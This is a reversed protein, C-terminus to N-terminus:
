REKHRRTWGIGIQATLLQEERRTPHQAKRRIGPVGGFRGKRLEIQMVGADAAFRVAEKLDNYRFRAFVGQEHLHKARERKRYLGLVYRDDLLIEDFFEAIIGVRQRTHM